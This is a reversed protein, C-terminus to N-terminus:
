SNSPEEEKKKKKFIKRITGSVIPTIYYWNKIVFKTIEKLAKSWNM